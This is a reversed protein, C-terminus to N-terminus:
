SKDAKLQKEYRREILIRAYQPVTKVWWLSDEPNNEGHKIM